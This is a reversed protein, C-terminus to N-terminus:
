NDWAILIDRVIGHRVIDNLGFDVISVGNVRGIKNVAYTLGNQQKLDSQKTDGTIVMKCNKGIRTLMMKMQEPTTNQSEDLIVFCNDFTKGRMFEMPSAIIKGNKILNRVWSAGLQKNLADMLPEIYPAYKESLEGPLAGLNRGTECVPRTIIIKDIQCERLMDAAVGAAVFSKGTGACGIGFTIINSTIANIYKDQAANMPKVPEFIVKEHYSSTHSHQDEYITEAQTNTYRKVESKRKVKRM